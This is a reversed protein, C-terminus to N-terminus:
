MAQSSESRLLRLASVVVETASDALGPYCSIGHRVAVKGVSPFKEAAIQQALRSWFKKVAAVDTGPLLVVFTKADDRSIVDIHRANKRLCDALQTAAFEATHRGYKVVIDDFAAIELVICGLSHGLKEAREIELNAYDDFRRKAISLGPKGSAMALEPERRKVGGLALELLRAVTEAFAVDSSNFGGFKREKDFLCLVGINEEGARLRVLMVNKRAGGVAAITPAGEIEGAYTWARFFAGDVAECDKVNLTLQSAEDDTFGVAPATGSYGDKDRQYLFAVARTAHTGAATASVAHALLEKPDSTRAFTDSVRHLSALLEELERAGYPKPGGSGLVRLPNM